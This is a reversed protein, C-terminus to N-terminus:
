NMFIVGLRWDTVSVTRISYFCTKNLVSCVILIINTHGKNLCSGGYNLPLKFLSGSEAVKMSM